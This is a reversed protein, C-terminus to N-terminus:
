EAAKWENRLAAIRHTAEAADTPTRQQYRPSDLLALTQAVSGAGSKMSRTKEKKLRLFEAFDLLEQQSELSLTKSVEYIKEAAQSM